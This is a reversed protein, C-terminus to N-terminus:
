GYNSETFIEDFYNRRYIIKTDDGYSTHLSNQFLVDPPLVYTQDKGSQPLNTQQFRMYFNQKLVAHLNKLKQPFWFFSQFQEKSRTNHEMYEICSPMKPFGAKQVSENIYGNKRAYYIIRKNIIGFLIKGDITLLSTSQFQGMDESNEEKPLYIGEKLQQREAAIKTQCEERLPLFLRNELSYM